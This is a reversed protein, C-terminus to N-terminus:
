VALAKINHSVVQVPLLITAYGPELRPKAMVASATSRTRGQWTFETVSSQNNNTCISTVITHPTFPDM